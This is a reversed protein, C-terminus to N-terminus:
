STSICRFTISAFFVTIVKVAYEPWHSRTRGKTILRAYRVTSFAGQGLEHGVVLDHFKLNPLLCPSESSQAKAWSSVGDESEDANGTSSPKLKEIYSLIKELSSSSSTWTSAQSAAPDSDSNLPNTTHPPNSENRRPVPGFHTLSGKSGDGSWSRQTPIRSNSFPAKNKM